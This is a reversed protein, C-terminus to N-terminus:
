YTFYFKGSRFDAETLQKMEESNLIRNQSVVKMQIDSIGLELLYDDMERESHIYRSTKKRTVRYLPPQAIYIFNNEVM